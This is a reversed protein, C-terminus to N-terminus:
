SIPRPRNGSALFVRMVEEAAKELYEEANQIAEALSLPGPCISFAATIGVRHLEPYGSISGGLAICPIGRKYAREAVGAPAKGFPTQSDLRGEATFVLDAGDLAQDLGVLDLVVDVGRRLIGGLFACVGAGMGGAAGAGPLNRIDIGLEKQIVDALRCLGRELREVDAPSAGKQPGYVRAAGEPGLLPNTVDCVAEVVIGHLRSPLDGLSFSALSELSGGSGDLEKGAEDWFHGGLARVMGVGGDVTASGGLGLIIRKAGMALAIAMLEGTGFTTTVLPNRDKPELLALGSARAMEIVATKAMRGEEIWAFAARIPKGRPDHVTTEVLRGGLAELLVETLSDGGDAVPICHIEAEPCITRIGKAIAKAAASATLSEKLANPAVVIKM